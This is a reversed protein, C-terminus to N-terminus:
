DIGIVELGQKKLLAVLVGDGPVPEGKRCISGLGCSPSGSKLYVRTAGAMRAMKYFEQAGRIMKYTVDRGEKDVVRARGALVDEGGGEQIEMPTRPTPLGGLQEPCAPIAKGGKVMAVVERCSASAGNYRCNIGALCASALTIEEEEKKREIM